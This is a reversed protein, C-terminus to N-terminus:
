GQPSWCARARQWPVTTTLISQIHCLRPGQAALCPEIDRSSERVTLPAFAKAYFQDLCSFREVRPESDSRAACRRFALLPQYATVGSTQFGPRYKGLGNWLGALDAWSEGGFPKAFRSAIRM